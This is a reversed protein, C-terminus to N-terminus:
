DHNQKTAQALQEAMKQLTLEGFMGDIHRMNNMRQFHEIAEALDRSFDNDIEGRYYGLQTLRQKLDRVTLGFKELYILSNHKQAQFRQEKDLGQMYEDFRDWQRNRQEIFSPPLEQEERRLSEFSKIFADEIEAVRKEVSELKANFEVEFDLVKLKTVLPLLTPLLACIAAIGFWYIGQRQLDTINSFFVTFIFMAIAALALTYSIAAVRKQNFRQNTM